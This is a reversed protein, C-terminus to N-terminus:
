PVPHRKPAGQPLSEESARRLPWHKLGTDNPADSEYHARITGPKDGTYAIFDKHAQVPVRLRDAILQTFGPIPPNGPVTRDNGVNCTHLLVKRIPIKAKALEDAIRDLANLTVKTRGGPLHGPLAGDFLKNKDVFLTHPFTEVGDEVTKADEPMLDCWPVGGGLGQGGDGHGVALAIIGGPVDAVARAFAKVLPDYHSPKVPDPPRITPITYVRRDRTGKAGWQKTAWRSVINLSKDQKASETPVLMALPYWVFLAAKGVFFEVKGNVRGRVTVQLENRVVANGTDLLAIDITNAGDTVKLPMHKLRPQGLQEASKPVYKGDRVQGRFRALVAGPVVDGGDRYQAQQVDIEVDDASRPPRSFVIKITEGPLARNESTKTSLLTAALPNSM